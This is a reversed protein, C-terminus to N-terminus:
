RPSGRSATRTSAARGTRRRASTSAPAVYPRLQTRRANALCETATAPAVPKGTEDLWVDVRRQKCQAVLDALQKLARKETATPVPTDPAGPAGPACTRPAPLRPPPLMNSLPSPTRTAPGGERRIYPRGGPGIVVTGPSLGVNQQCVTQADVEKRLRVRESEPLRFPGVARADIRDTAAGPVLSVDVALSDVVASARAPLQLRGASDAIRTGGETVLAVRRDSRRALGRVTEEVGDWRPHTAAYGLLADNIRADSALTQGQQHRIEGSTSQAALWATAVISCVAILVSSAVLRVLLSHRM